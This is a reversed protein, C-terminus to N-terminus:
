LDCKLEISGEKEGVEYFGLRKYLALAAKREPEVHILAEKVGKDRWHSLAREILGRAIGKGRYEPVTAVVSIYAMGKTMFSVVFAVPKELDWAVFNADKDFQPIAYWDEPWPTDSFSEAYLNPIFHYAHEQLVTIDM